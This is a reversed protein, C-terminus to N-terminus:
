PRGCSRVLCVPRAPSWSTELVPADAMRYAPRRKAWISHVGGGHVCDLQRAHSSPMPGLQPWIFPPSLLAFQHAAALRTPGQLQLM